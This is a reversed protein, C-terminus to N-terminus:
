VSSMGTFFSADTAHIMCRGIRDIVIVRLAKGASKKDMGMAAILEAEPIDPLTMPM